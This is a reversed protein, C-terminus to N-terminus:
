SQSNSKLRTQHASAPALFSTGSRTSTSRQSVGVDPPLAFAISGLAFVAFPPDHQSVILRTPTPHSNQLPICALTNSNNSNPRLFRLTSAITFLRHIASTMRHPQIILLLSSYLASYCFMIFTIYECARQDHFRWYSCLQTTYSMDKQTRIQESDRYNQYPRRTCCSRGHPCIPDWLQSM